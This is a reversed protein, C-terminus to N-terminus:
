TTRKGNEFHYNTAYSPCTVKITTKVHPFRIRQGCSDCVYVIKCKRSIFKNPDDPMFIVRYSGKRGLFPGIKELVVSGCVPCQERKEDAFKDGIMNVSIIDGTSESTTESVCDPCFRPNKAYSIEQHYLNQCPESLCYYYRAGEKLCHKCYYKGCAHCFSIARKDPHNACKETKTM